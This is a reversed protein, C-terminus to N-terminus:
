RQGKYEKPPARRYGHFEFFQQSQHDFPRSQGTIVAPTGGEIFTLPLTIRDCGFRWHRRLLGTFSHMRHHVLLLATVKSTLTVKSDARGHRPDNRTLAKKVLAVRAPM